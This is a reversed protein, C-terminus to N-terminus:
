PTSFPPVRWRGGPGVVRLTIRGHPLTGVAFRGASDTQASRREGAAEIEIEYLNPEELRLLGRLAFMGPGEAETEVELTGEGMSFALRRGTGMARRTAASAGPAASDLVLRAVLFRLSPRGLPKQVPQFLDLARHRWAEPVEVSRDRQMRHLTLGVEHLLLRCEACASGLHEEAARRSKADLRDELFDLIARTDLHKTSRPRRIM